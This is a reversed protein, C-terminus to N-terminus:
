GGVYSPPVTNIAKVIEEMRRGQDAVLGEMDTWLSSHAVGTPNFGPGVGEDGAYIRAQLVTDPTIGERLLYPLTCLFGDRAMSPSQNWVDLYSAMLLANSPDLGAVEIIPAVAEAEARLIEHYQADADEPSSFTYYAANVSYNGVNWAGNGPDEHGYYNNTVGGDPTRNGEALGIIRGIISGIAGGEFLKDVQESM